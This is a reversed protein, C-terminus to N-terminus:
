YIRPAFETWRSSFRELQVVSYLLRKREYNYFRTFLAIFICVCVTGIRLLVSVSLRCLFQQSYLSFRYQHESKRLRRGSLYTEHIKKYAIHMGTDASPQRDSPSDNKLSTFDLLSWEMVLRGPAHTGFSLACSMNLVRPLSAFEYGSLAEGSEAWIVCVQKLTSFYSFRVIFPKEM